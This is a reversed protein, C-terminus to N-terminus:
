GTEACPTRHSANQKAVRHQQTTYKNMLSYTRITAGGGGAGRRSALSGLAPSQGGDRGACTTTNEIYRDM